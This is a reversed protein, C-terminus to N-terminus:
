PTPRLMPMLVEDVLRAPYDATIEGGSVKTCYMMMAPGVDALLELDAGARVEGRDVGRRLVDIIVQRGPELVKHRILSHFAKAHEHEIEEMIARLACGAPSYMVSRMRELLDVLDDRLSGHDPADRVLPLSHELAATVLDEKCAWRRYLAAKGTQACAAVGEMTLRKWGVASLQDLAADFIARQLVEGRRRLSAVAGGLTESRERPLMM